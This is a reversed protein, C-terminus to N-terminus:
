KVLINKATRYIGAMDFGCDKYLEDPTGQEIFLDPVGLMIMKSSYSNALMFEAVASGFGGKIIGDEVTIIKDFKQFVSHLLEEDLPKVFRMDYHAASIDEKALKKVARQAFIGPKGITLFALDTGESLVRAKGIKIKEFPKKWNSYLGCGRPYRISFPGSGDLQATFM